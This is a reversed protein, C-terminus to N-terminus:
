LGPLWSHVHTTKMIQLRVLEVVEIGENLRRGGLLRKGRRGEDMM